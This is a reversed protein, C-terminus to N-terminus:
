GWFICTRDLEIEQLISDISGPEILDFVHWRSNRDAWYLTWKHNESSYKMRAVGHRTWEPELMEHWPPRCEVITVTKGRLDVEMRIKDQHQVPVKDAAYKRVKHLDLDPVAAVGSVISASAKLRSVLARCIQETDLGVSLSGEHDRVKDGPKESGLAFRGRLARPM